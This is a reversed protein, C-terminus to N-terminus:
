APTVGRKRVPRRARTTKMMLPRAAEAYDRAFQLSKAVYTYLIDDASYCVRVEYGAPTQEISCSVPRGTVESILRWQEEHFPKRPALPPPPWSM